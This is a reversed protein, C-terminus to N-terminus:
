EEEALERYVFYDFDATAQHRYTDICTVGVFTGTFHEFSEPYEDSMKSADLMPGFTNWEEGDLSWFFQLKERHVEGRLYVPKGEPLAVRFATWEQKQGHDSSILGLAKGGLSESYYVRLFYHTLHDYFFTLGAMAQFYKPEFEVVTEVMVDFAQVRRAVLSQTHVSFLSDQGRLRLFGPRSTLDIGAEGVHVRLTNWETSLVPEDFHDKEPLSPVPSSPLDPAPVVLKAQNGGGELRLWGEENWYVKQLATERGLTSRMQPMLPRACLHAAYWNGETTEVLSAHGSKQLPADPNYYQPKLFAGVGRENFITVASTIIPNCPDPEYPGTIQKARAMTVGHGYGTGGEAAMLYYYGNRKYIHSAELCGMDTGGDYIRIPDGVVDQLEASYEQLFIVGPSPYDQRFDWELQTLWIRGDDDHFFSPDFGSSNLYVPKSYPGTVMKATVVYNDAHFVNGARNRVITYVLYFLQQQENYTLCPAWVGGSAMVGTLDLQEKNTLAYGIPQWHVLDRSHHIRVGPVWEFTSTAIYYDEGVRLISPDPHFGRLIPNQIQKSM